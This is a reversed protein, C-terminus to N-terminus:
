RISSMMNDVREKVGNYDQLQDRKGMDSCGSPSPSRSRVPSDGGSVANGLTNTPCSVKLGQQLLAMGDPALRDMEADAPLTGVYANFNYIGCPCEDKIDRLSTGSLDEVTQGDRMVRFSQAGVGMPVTWARVGAPAQFTQTNMGSTVEVSAPEKLQTVVFVADQMTDAGEPRGRFFNGSANNANQMTTDTADCNTSKPSPRYWYIIKEEELFDIPLESGAKYAAIFPKAMDLWGNHPMDMVWKSSGDDTHPSSLPGIYHSEGYDNWTIIEVFRPKTALIERWRNYWLLDSPFVWNKSYSVEDGFHTSFWPSVPAIYPKGALASHYAADGDMVSVTREATPAKNYGDSGWAMWNLASDVDNFDGQGPHFNPAFFVNCGAAARMAGCDVGDGTFSSVFVKGDVMLQAPHNSFEKIKNGVESGQGVHYWNFDFSIFVKMGNDAASQYAFNLQTDTYSDTGINLAFADIGAEKARKMDADYDSANQRNSVVGMMFHCFVLRNGHNADEDRISM